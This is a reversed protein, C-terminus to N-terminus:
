HYPRSTRRRVRPDIHDPHNTAGVVVVGPRDEIGSLLELLLNVIQTLVGQLRILDPSRSRGSETLSTSSCSAPRRSARRRLLGQDGVAHGLSLSRCELRCRENGRSPRRCVQRARPASSHRASAPRALWSCARKSVIGISDGWAINAYIRSWISAGSAPQVMVRSSRWVRVVTTLSPNQQCLRKWDSSAITPQAISCVSLALDAIDVARVLHEDISAGPPKGTVAEIVLAIGLRRPPRLLHHEAARQLDRPLHRRPNPAVGLLIPAGAHLRRRLSTM